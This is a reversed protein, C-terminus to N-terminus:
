SKGDKDRGGHLKSWQIVAVVVDVPLCALPSREGLRWHTGMMVALARREFLKRRFLRQIRWVYVLPLVGKITPKLMVAADGGRIIALAVLNDRNRSPWVHIRKPYRGGGQDHVFEEWFERGTYEMGRFDFLQKGVRVLMSQQYFTANPAHVMM